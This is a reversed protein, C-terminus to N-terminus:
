RDVPRPSIWMRITALFVVKGDPSRAEVEAPMEYGYDRTEIRSSSRAIVHMTGKAKAVYEVTMGKPIWRMGRPTGAEMMVGGALEAANCLAIAHVSGIHNRVCRRDRFELECRGDQVTLFRPAITSFYPARWCVVRGFLWRGLPWRSMRLFTSALRTRAADPATHTCPPKPETMQHEIQLISPEHPKRALTLADAARLMLLCPARTSSM